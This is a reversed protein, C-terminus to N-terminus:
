RSLGEEGFKKGAMVGRRGDTSKSDEEMEVSM